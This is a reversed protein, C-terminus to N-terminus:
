CLAGMGNHSGNYNNDIIIGDGGKTRGLKRDGRSQGRKQTPHGTLSLNHTLLFSFSQSGPGARRNGKLM